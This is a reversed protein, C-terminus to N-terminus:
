EQAKKQRTEENEAVAFCAIKQKFLSFFKNPSTVPSPCLVNAFKPGLVKGSFIILEMTQATQSPGHGRRVRAPCHKFASVDDRIQSANRIQIMPLDAMEGQHLLASGTASSVSSTMLKQLLAGDSDSARRM